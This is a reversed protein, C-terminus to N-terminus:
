PRLYHTRPQFFVMNHSKTSTGRFSRTSRRLLPAGVFLAETLHRPRQTPRRLQRQCPALHPLPAGRCRPHTGRPSQQTRRWAWTLTQQRVGPPLCVLKTPDKTDAPKQALMVASKVENRSHHVQASVAFIYSISIDSSMAVTQTRNTEDVEERM